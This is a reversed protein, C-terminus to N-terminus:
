NKHLGLMTKDPPANRNRSANMSQAVTNGRPEGASGVRTRLLKTFTWLLLSASSTSSAQLWSHLWGYITATYASRNCLQSSRPLPADPLLTLLSRFTRCAPTLCTKSRSVDRPVTLTVRIVRKGKLRKFIMRMQSRKGNQDLSRRKGHMRGGNDVLKWSGNFEASLCAEKTAFYLLICGKTSYPNALPAQRLIVNQHNRAADFTFRLSVEEVSSARETLAVHRGEKILLTGAQLAM